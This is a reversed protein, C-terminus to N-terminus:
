GFPGGRSRLPKQIQNVSERVLNGDGDLRFQWVTLEQGSKSLIEQATLIQKVAGSPTVVVVEVGVPVPYVSQANSYLHLNVVYRGAPIGRSMATERNQTGPDRYSGRDDRLLNFTKGGLRSYGVARGGPALVWLDVDTSWDDPWDITVIVNGAPVTEETGDRPPNLHPLIIVVVAVFGLLVVFIMDRFVTSTVEDKM